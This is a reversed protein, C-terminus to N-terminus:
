VNDGNVLVDKTLDDSVTVKKTMNRIHITDLVMLIWIDSTLVLKRIYIYIM